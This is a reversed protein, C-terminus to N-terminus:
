QYTSKLKAVDLITVSTRSNNICGSAALKSMARSVTERNLNLMESLSQHTLPLTIKTGAPTTEGYRAGLYVLQHAVRRPVSKLSINELLQINSELRRGAEFLVEKYIDPNERAAEALTEADVTYIQVDTYAEYFYTEDGEYIDQNLLTKLATTLPFFYGPGYISQTGLLGEGTIMYRKVYGKRVLGVRNTGSLTEIAQGKHRTHYKGQELLATINPLNM